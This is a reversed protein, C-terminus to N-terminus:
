PRKYDANKWRYLGRGSKRGEIWEGRYSDGNRYVMTGKGHMKGDINLHMSHGRAEHVEVSSPYPPAYVSKRIWQGEYESRDSFVHHGHFVFGNECKKVIVNVRQVAAASYPGMNCLADKIMEQERQAQFHKAEDFLRDFRFGEVRNLAQKLADRACAATSAVGSEADRGLEVSSALASIALAISTRKSNTETSILAHTLAECVGEAVLAALFKM